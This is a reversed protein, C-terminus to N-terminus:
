GKLWRSGPSISNQLEKRQHYTLELLYKNEEYMAWDGSKVEEQSELQQNGIREDEPDPGSKWRSTRFEQGPEQVQSQVGRKFGVQIGLEPM